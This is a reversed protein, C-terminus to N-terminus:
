SIKAVLEDLVPGLNDYDRDSVKRHVDSSNDDKYTIIFFGKSEFHTKNIQEISEYSIKEKGNILLETNDAVIKRKRIAFLYAGLLVSAGVLYAPARRNFVLYTKPNGDADTHEAIWDKNIYGDYACWLALAICFFIYLALTKKKHKSAPAEISMSRDEGFIL